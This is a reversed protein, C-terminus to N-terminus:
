KNFFEQLRFTCANQLQLLHQQQLCFLKEATIMDTMRFRIAEGPKSQALKPLHATVVHAIRPYGGTTQHDAMLLILQGDPLLQITGFDVACSVLEPSYQSLLKEGRLRYGMRDSAATIIFPQKLFDM